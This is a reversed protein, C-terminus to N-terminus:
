SQSLIFYYNTVETEANLWIGMYCFLYKVFYRLYSSVVYNNRKASLDPAVQRM